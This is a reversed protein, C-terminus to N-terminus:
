CYRSRKERDHAAPSGSVRFETPDRLRLHGEGNVRVVKYRLWFVPSARLAASGRKAFPQKSRCLQRDPTPERHESRKTSGDRESEFRMDPILTFRGTLTDSLALGAILRSLM